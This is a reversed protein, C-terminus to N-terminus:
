KGANISATTSESGPADVISFVGKDDSFVLEVDRATLANAVADARATDFLVDGLTLVVAREAQKLHLASM